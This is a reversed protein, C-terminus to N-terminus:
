TKINNTCQRVGLHKPNLKSIQLDVSKDTLLTRLNYQPDAIDAVITHCLTQEKILPEWTIISQEIENDDSKLSIIIQNNMELKMEKRAQQILRIIDRAIGERRLDLSINIDLVVMADNSPLVAAMGIFEEKPLLNLKFEDGVLVQGAILINSDQFEWQNLQNAAVIGKIKSPLRKALVSYNVKLKYDAYQLLKEKGLNTWTKVNIEDLILQQLETTINNDTVGIFMVGSLPQRVRIRQENRIRLAASCAARVKDMTDLLVDNCRVADCSVPFRELHVSSTSSTIALFVAESIFPALPASLIALTKLCYHLTNYAFQKDEDKDHRWFRKRSRRIYWNNLTELFEELVIYSTVTDYSDLSKNVIQIVRSIKSLLYQDLINPSNLELKEEIKDAKSYLNYFLYANWLPQLFTKISEKIGTDKSDIVLEKGRMVPSSLMFVRVADAGYLSFIKSPDSYNKLRKSLKQNGDGLIVGHCIGNLFPPKNFLATSLVLLTYFWGRTQALYEVIFDAPLNNQVWKKNAFPYHMQAFPMSGSEFWCDLIYPVRKLKSQGTPDNPNKKILKDISPRHLDKVTVGFADELESVSGYVETCPYKPDDSQWVPVPCGWFRNRSISWDRANELWKGFLGKKIHGPIWNIKDNNAIMKDKIATVKVYWSPVAKYILPTDTRWCHPYNHIYQETRIWHKKQKIFKIIENNTEFVQKGIFENVPSTFKGADDVPCVMKIGNHKCVAHDDEGFGPAMHVLGTGDKTTVFDAALVRFANTHGLFYSFPPKYRMGVLDKGKCTGVINAGLEKRYSILLESAVIYINDDKLVYVYNIDGGVAVALNSPVTWPTTTWIMLFADKYPSTTCVLPPIQELRFLITIANSKKQRYSNDIRTEFDSVPTQCSWSYPMVRVDEYILEKDYLAKFAWLVSEMYNIDMTKYDNQFDVWRGQRNVYSQWEEVYTLVSAECAKNFKEIGYKEVAIKGSINLKKEVYMEAPLGHCDWGFRRTVNKGKMSQYRGFVDKIFGTLLHGYHPLGNAFPPGDYFVFEPLRNNLTKQFTKDDQWKKLIIKEIESFNNTHWHM